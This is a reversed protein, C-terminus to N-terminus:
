WCGTMPYYMIKHPTYLIKLPISLNKEGKIMFEQNGCRMYVNHKSENKLICIGNEESINLMKCTNINNYENTIIVGSILGYTTGMAWAIIILLLIFFRKLWIRIKEKNM